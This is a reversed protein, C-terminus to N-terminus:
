SVSGRLGMKFKQRAGRFCGIVCGRLGDTTGRSSRSCGGGPGCQSDERDEKEPRWPAERWMEVSCQVGNCLFFKRRLKTRRNVRFIPYHKKM